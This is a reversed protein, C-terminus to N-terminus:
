RPVMRRLCGPLEDRPLEGAEARRLVEVDVGARRAFEARDLGARGRSELIGAAVEPWTSGCLELSDAVRDRLRDIPAPSRVSPPTSRGMTLPGHTRRM